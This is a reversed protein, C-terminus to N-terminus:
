KRIREDLVRFKEILEHRGLNSFEMLCGSKNIVANIWLTYFRKEFVVSLLHTDIHITAKLFAKLELNECHKIARQLLIWERLKDFNNLVENARPAFKIVPVELPNSGYIFGDTWYSNIRGAAERITHDGGSMTSVFAASANSIEPNLFTIASSEWNYEPLTNRMFFAVKFQNATEELVHSDLIEQNSTEECIETSRDNFWAEIISLREATNYYNLIDKYRLKIKAKLRPKIKTKWKFFPITLRNIWTKFSKNIASLLETTEKFPLDSFQHYLAIKEQFEKSLNIAKNFLEEKEKIKEIELSWWNEPLKKVKSLADLIPILSPLENYTFNQNPLLQHLRNM